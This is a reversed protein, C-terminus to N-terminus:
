GPAAKCAHEVAATENRTPLKVDDPFVARFYYIARCMNGAASAEITAPAIPM